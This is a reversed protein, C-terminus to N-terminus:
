GGREPQANVKWVLLLLVGLVMSPFAWRLTVFVHWLLALLNREVILGDAYEFGWIWTLAIKGLGILANMVGIAALALTAGLLWRRWRTWNVLAAGCSVVVASEAAIKLVEMVGDILFMKRSFVEWTTTPERMFFNAQALQEMFWIRGIELTVANVVFFAMGLVCAMRACWQVRSQEVDNQALGRILWFVLLWTGFIAIAWAFSGVTSATHAFTHDGEPIHRPDALYFLGAMILRVLNIGSLFLLAGVGAYLWRVDRRLLAVTAAAIQLGSFLANVWIKSHELWLADAAAFWSFNTGSFRINLWPHIYKQQPFRWAIETLVDVVGYVLMGWMLWCAVSRLDVEGVGTKSYGLVPKEVLDLMTEDRQM